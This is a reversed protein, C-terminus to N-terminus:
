KLSVIVVNGVLPFRLMWPIESDIWTLVSLFYLSLEIIPIFIIKFLFSCVNKFSVQKFHLIM